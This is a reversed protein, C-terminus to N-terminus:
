YAVKKRVMNQLAIITLERFLLEDCNLARGEELLDLMDIVFKCGLVRSFIPSFPKLGLIQMSAQM